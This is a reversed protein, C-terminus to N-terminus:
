RPPERRFGPQRNDDSALGRGRRAFPCERTEPGDDLPGFVSVQLALAALSAPEKIRCYRFATFIRVTTLTTDAVIVLTYRTLRPTLLDIQRLIHSLKVLERAIRFIAAARSITRM